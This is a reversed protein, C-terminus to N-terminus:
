VVDYFGLRLQRLDVSEETKRLDDWMPVHRRICAWRGSLPRDSFMTIIDMKYNQCFTVIVKTIKKATEIDVCALDSTRAERVDGTCVVYLPAFGVLENDRELYYLTGMLHPHRIMNDIDGASRRSHVANSTSVGSHYLEVMRKVEDETHAGLSIVSILEHIAKRKIDLTLDHQGVDHSLQWSVFRVFIFPDGGALDLETLVTPDPAFRNPHLYTFEHYGNYRVQKSDIIRM